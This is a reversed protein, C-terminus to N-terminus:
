KGGINDNKVTEENGPQPVKHGDNRVVPDSKGTDNRFDAQHDRMGDREVSEGKNEHYSGTTQVVPDPSSPTDSFDRDTSAGATASLSLAFTLAMIFATHRQMNM